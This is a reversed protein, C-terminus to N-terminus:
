SRTALAWFMALLTVALATAGAIVVKLPVRRERTSTFRHAGTSDVEPHEPPSEGRDVRELAEVVASATPYRNEPLKATMNRIVNSLGVSVDPVVARPPELPDRPIARFLEMATRSKFPVQGTALTYLSAGLAYIDSSPTQPEGLCQEPSLFHPTGITQGAADRALRGASSASAEFGALVVRDDRFLFLNNPKLDGHIVGAQHVAGLAEAIAIGIRVVEAEPLHGAKRAREDAWEGDLYEMVLYHLPGASDAEYVMAINPHELSQLLRATERQAELGREGADEHLVKLAVLTGV